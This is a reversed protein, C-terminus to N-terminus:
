PTAVAEAPVCVPCAPDPADIHERAHREKTRRTRAAERKRMREREAADQRTGFSEPWLASQAHDLATRIGRPSDTTGMIRTLISGAIPSLGEHDSGGRRRSTANDEEGIAELASVLVRVLAAAGEPVYRLANDRPSTDAEEREAIVADAILKPVFYKAKTAAVASTSLTVDSAARWIARTVIRDPTVSDIAEVPMECSRIDWRSARSASSEERARVCGACAGCRKLRPIDFETVGALKDLRVLDRVRTVDERTLLERMHRAAIMRAESAVDDRKSWDVNRGRNIAENRMTHMVRAIFRDSMTHEGIYVWVDADIDDAYETVSDTDGLFPFVDEGKGFVPMVHVGNIPLAMSARDPLVSASANMHLPWSSGEEARALADAVLHSTRARATESAKLAVWERLAALRASPVNAITWEQESM